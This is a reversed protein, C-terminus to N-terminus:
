MANTQIAPSKLKALYVLIGECYLVANDNISMPQSLLM